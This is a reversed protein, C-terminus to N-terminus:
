VRQGFAPGTSRPQPGGPPMGSDSKANARDLFNQLEAQDEMAKRVFLWGWYISLGWGIFLYALM